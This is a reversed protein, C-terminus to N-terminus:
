PKKKKGTKDYDEDRGGDTIADDDDTGGTNSSVVIDGDRNMNQVTNGGTNLPHCEHEKECSTLFLGSVAVLIVILSVKKM